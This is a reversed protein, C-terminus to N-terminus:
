DALKKAILSHIPLGQTRFLKEFESPINGDSRVSAYLDSTVFEVATQPMDQLMKLTETFYEPHDSKYSLYGLPKLVSFIESLFSDSLLRHKRWRRKAWPDPFNVFVAGLSSPDFIKTLLKADGQVVVLNDLCKEEAKEATRYVRKFRLEFGIYFNNPNRRAQEVLHEGSGCGLEVCIENFEKARSLVVKKIEDQPIELKTAGIYKPKTGVLDIYQNKWNTFEM